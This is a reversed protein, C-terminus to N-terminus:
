AAPKPTGTDEPKTGESKVSDPKPGDPRPGAVGPKPGTDSPKLIMDTVRTILERFTQERYGVLFAVVYFVILDKSSLINTALNATTGAPNAVGATDPALFKPPTGASSVILVFLFFSITGLVAGFIPRGVHWYNYEPNWRSESWQFVGELSITVAGLAGFWPVAIPLIGGVLYPPGTYAVEYAIAMLVLILTYSLGLWFFFAPRMRFIFSNSVNRATRCLIVGTAAILILAAVLVGLVSHNWEWHPAQPAQAKAVDLVALCCTAGLAIVEGYRRLKM